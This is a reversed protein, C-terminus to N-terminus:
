SKGLRTFAAYKKEWAAFHAVIPRLDMEVTKHAPKFADDRGAYATAPQVGNALVFVAVDDVGLAADIGRGVHLRDLRLQDVGVELLGLAPM